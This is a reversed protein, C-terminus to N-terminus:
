SSTTTITTDVTDRFGLNGLIPVGKELCKKELCARPQDGLMKLFCDLDTLSLLDSM